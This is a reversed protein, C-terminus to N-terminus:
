SVVARGLETLRCVTWAPDKSASFMPEVWGRSVCTKVTRESIAQGQEDFLPLKGGDKSLGRQLWRKQQSSPARGLPRVRQLGELPLAPEPTKPFRRVVAKFRTPRDDRADDSRQRARVPLRYVNDGGLKVTASLKEIRDAM